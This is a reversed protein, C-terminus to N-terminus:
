FMRMRPGRSRGGGSSSDSPSGSTQTPQIVATVVTEGARLGSVIESNDNGIIGVVVKRPVEEGKELVTVMTGNDSEKIAENPVYLVNKKRSTVFDCTANMEPKLRRDAYDLEVTVPVTTVNQDVIAQPAIKIVKGSFL